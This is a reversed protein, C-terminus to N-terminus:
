NQTTVNSGFFLLPNANTSLVASGSFYFGGPITLEFIASPELAASPFTLTLSLADDALEPETVGSLVADNKKVVVSPPAVLSTLARAFDLKVAVEDGAAILASFDVSIGEQGVPDPASLKAAQNLIFSESAANQAPAILLAAQGQSHFQEVGGIIAYYQHTASDKVYAQLRDGILLATQVGPFANGGAGNPYVENGDYRTGRLSEMDLNWVDLDWQAGQEESFEICRDQSTSGRRHVCVTERHPAPNAINLCDGDGAECGPREGSEDDFWAQMTGLEIAVEGTQLPSSPDGYTEHYTYQVILDETPREPIEVGWWGPGVILSEQRDPLEITYRNGAIVETGAVSILEIEPLRLSEYALFEENFAFPAYKIDTGVGSQDLNAYNGSFQVPDTLAIVPGGPESLPIAYTTIADPYGEEVSGYVSSISWADLGDPSVLIKEEWGDYGEPPSRDSVSRTQSDFVKGPTYIKGEWEAIYYPHDSQLSVVQVDTALDQADVLRLQTSEGADPGYWPAELLGIVADSLWFADMSIFGNSPEIPVVSGDADMFFTSDNCCVGEPLDRPAFGQMLAAGDARFVMGTRGMDLRHEAALSKTNVSGFEDGARLLCLFEDTEKDIQYLNCVEPPLDLARQIHPGTLLYTYQGDPSLNAEAFFLEENSLITDPVVEGAEDYTVTNSNAEFDSDDDVLASQVRSGTAPGQKEGIALSDVGSSLAFRIARTVEPDSPAVDSRDGIGDSDSDYQEYSDKPFADEEDKVGDNDDDGDALMGLSTCSADCEDPAGDGDTDTLDGISVLPFADDSDAIGDGDDDPDSNNGVGDGDTDLSETPDEPFADELDLVGDDDSDLQSGGLIVVVVAKLTEDYIGVANQPVCFLLIASAFAAVLSNKLNM